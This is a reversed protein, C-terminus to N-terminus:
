CAKSLFRWTFISLLQLCPRGWPVALNNPIFRSITSKLCLIVLEVIQEVTLYTRESLKVDKILCNRVVQIADDPPISTFLVSVDYSTIIENEDLTPSNIKKVFDQTNKLHHPSQGVLPGIVKAAHKALNYSM